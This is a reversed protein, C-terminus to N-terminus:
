CATEPALLRADEAKVVRELGLLAQYSRHLRVFPAM